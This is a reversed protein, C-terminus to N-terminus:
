ECRSGDPRVWSITRPDLGDDVETVRVTTGDQELCFWSWTDRGTRGIHWGRVMVPGAAARELARTWGAGPLTASLRTLRAIYAGRDDRLPETRILRSM